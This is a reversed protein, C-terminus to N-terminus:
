QNKVRILPHRQLVRLLMGPNQLVARPFVPCLDRVLSRVLATILKNVAGRYTKPRQEDAMGKVKGSSEVYEKKKNRKVNQRRVRPVIPLILQRKKSFNSNLFNNKDRLQM